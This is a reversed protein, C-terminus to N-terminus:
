ARLLELDKQGKRTPIETAHIRVLKARSLRGQGWFKKKLSAKEEPGEFWQRM